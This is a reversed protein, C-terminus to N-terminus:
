IRPFFDIELTRVMGESAHSSWLASSQTDFDCRKETQLECFSSPKTKETEHFIEFCLISFTEANMMLPLKERRSWFQHKMVDSSRGFGLVTHNHQVNVAYVCWMSRRSSKMHKTRWWCCCAAAWSESAWINLFSFLCFFTWANWTSSVYKSVLNVRRHLLNLSIKM